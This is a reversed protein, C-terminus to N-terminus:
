VDTASHSKESVIQINILRTARFRDVLGAHRLEDEVIIGRNGFGDGTAGLQFAFSVSFISSRRSSAWRRSVSASTESTGPVFHGEFINIELLTRNEIVVVQLLDGIAIM